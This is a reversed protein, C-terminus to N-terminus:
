TTREKRPKGIRASLANCYGCAADACDEIWTWTRKGTAPDTSMPRHVALCEKQHQECLLYTDLGGPAHAHPELGGYLDCPCPKGCVRCTLDKEERLPM